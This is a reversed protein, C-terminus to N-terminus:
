PQTQLALSGTQQGSDPDVFLILQCDPGDGLRLAVRDGANVMGVLRCGKPLTLSATGFGSAGHNMRSMVTVVVVTLGAVILVGMVVVLVKLAQM